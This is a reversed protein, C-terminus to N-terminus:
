VEMNTTNNIQNIRVECVFGNLEIYLKESAGEFNESRWNLPTLFLDEKAGMIKNETVMAHANVSVGIHEPFRIRLENVFGFARWHAEGPPIKAQALDLKFDSAFYWFETDAIEWEGYRNVNRAFGFYAQTDDRTKSQRVLVFVGISILALPWFFRWLNLEFLNSILLLIGFLLVAGGFFFQGKNRM